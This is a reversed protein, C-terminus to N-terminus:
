ACETEFLVQGLGRDRDDDAGVGFIAPIVQDLGDGRHLPLGLRGVLDHEDDVVAWTQKRPGCLLQM